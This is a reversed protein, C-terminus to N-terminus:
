GPDVARTELHDGPLFQWTRTIVLETIRHGDADKDAPIPPFPAALRVIRLAADDLVRYGSSTNIAIGRVQGDAGVTVSLVVNGHLHRRRAADPYNLNGIREIRHVWAVQYAADAMSRTNASVYKRRPRRAYAQQEDRVEQALRAMELRQQVPMSSVQQQPQPEARTDQQQAVTLKADGTTTILHPGSAVQQAPAAPLVPVPAIGAQTVPLPGSFPAGPRHAKDSNGGGANNAQALFDAQKPTEANSTNVLTVDLTPLSPAPKAFHFGIGLILIAHLMVSFLLAAGLHGAGLGPTDTSLAANM